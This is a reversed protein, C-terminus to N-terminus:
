ISEGYYGFCHLRGDDNDVFDGVNLITEQPYNGNSCYGELIPRFGYFDHFIMRNCTRGFYGDKRAEMQGMNNTICHDLNLKSYPFAGEKNHCYAGLWVDDGTQYVTYSNCSDAFSYVTSNAATTTNARPRQASPAAAAGHLLAACIAVITLIFRM